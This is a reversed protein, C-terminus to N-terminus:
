IMNLFDEVTEAKGLMIQVDIVDDKSLVTERKHTTMDKIATTDYVRGGISWTTYAGDKSLITCLHPWASDLDIEDDLTINLRGKKEDFNPNCSREATRNIIDTIQAKTSPRLGVEFVMQYGDPLNQVFQTRQDESLPKPTVLHLTHKEAYGEGKVTKAVALFKQLKVLKEQDSNAM